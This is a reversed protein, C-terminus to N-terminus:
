GEFIEDVLMSATYRDIEGDAMGIAHEILDERTFDGTMYMDELADKLDTWDSRGKPEGPTYAEVPGGLTYTKAAVEMRKITDALTRPTNKAMFNIIDKPEHETLAKLLRKTIDTEILTKKMTKRLTAM